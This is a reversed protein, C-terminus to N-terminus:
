RVDMFLGVTYQPAVLLVNGSVSGTYSVSFGIEEDMYFAAEVMFNTFSMSQTFGNSFERAEDDAAHIGLLRGILWLRSEATSVGAEFGYHVEPSFPENRNNYGLYATAYGGIKKTGFPVSADVRFLQNFEGDGTFLNGRDGKEIGGTPLGLKVTGSVNISESQYLRFRLGIDTDGIGGAADNVSLETSDQLITGEISHRIYIPLYAELSVGKGLGHEFYLSTTLLQSNLGPSYGDAGSFYGESSVWAQSLKYYGFGKQKVWGGGAIAGITLQLSFIVGLIRFM